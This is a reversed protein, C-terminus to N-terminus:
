PLANEQIPLCALFGLVNIAIQCIFVVWLADAYSDVAARQLFPDLTPIIETNRSLTPDTSYTAPHFVSLVPDHRHDACLPITVFSTIFLNNM